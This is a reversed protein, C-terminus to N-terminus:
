ILQISLPDVKSPSNTVSSSDACNLLLQNPVIYDSDMEGFVPIVVRKGHLHNLQGNIISALGIATNYDIYCKTEELIKAALAISQNTVRYTEDVIPEPTSAQYWEYQVTPFRLERQCLNYGRVFKINKDFVNCVEPKVMIITAAPQMEKIAIAISATLSCEEITSPLIVVDNNTIGTAIEVGITAQGIIM